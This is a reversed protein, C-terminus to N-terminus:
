GEQRNKEKHCPWCLLQLNILDNNGGKFLALIHDITLSGRSLCQKCYNCRQGDREILRKKIKAKVKKTRFFGARVRRVKDQHLRKRRYSIRRRYDTDFYYRFGHARAYPYMAIITKFLRILYRRLTEGTRPKYFPPKSKYKKFSM